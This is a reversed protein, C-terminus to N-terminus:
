EPGILATMGRALSGTVLPRALRLRDAAGGRAWVQGRVRQPVDPLAPSHPKELGTAAAANPRPLERLLRSRLRAHAARRRWGRQLPGSWITNKTNANIIFATLVLCTCSMPSALVLVAFLAYAIKSVM